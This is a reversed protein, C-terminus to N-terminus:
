NCLKWILFADLGIAVVSITIGGIIIKRQLRNNIQLRNMETSQKELREQMELNLNRYNDITVLAAELETIAEEAIAYVDDENAGNERDNQDDPNNWGSSVHLHRVTANAADIM